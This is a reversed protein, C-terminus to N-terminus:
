RSNHYFCATLLLYISIIPWWGKLSSDTSRNFQEQHDEGACNQFPAEEEVLTLTRVVTAWEARQQPSKPPCWGVSHPRYPLNSRTRALVTKFHPWRKLLLSPESLQQESPGKSRHSPRVGVWQIRDTPYIAAPGRWCLWDQNRTGRSEHNYKNM